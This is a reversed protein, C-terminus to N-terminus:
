NSPHTVGEVKLVSARTGELCEWLSIVQFENEEEKELEYIRARSESGLLLIVKKRHNTNIFQTLSCVAM